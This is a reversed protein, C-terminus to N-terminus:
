RCRSARPSTQSVRHVRATTQDEIPGSYAPEMVFVFQCPGDLNIGERGCTYPQLLVQVSGPEQSRFSRIVEIDTEPDMNGYRVATPVRLLKLVQETYFALFPNQLTVLVKTMNGNGEVSRLVKNCLLSLLEQIQPSGRVALFLLQYATVPRPDYTEMVLPSLDTLNIKARRM